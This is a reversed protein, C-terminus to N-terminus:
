PKAPIQVSTVGAACGHNRELHATGWPTSVDACVANPDSALAALDPACACLLGCLALAALRRM